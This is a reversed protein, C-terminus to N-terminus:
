IRQNRLVIYAEWEASQFVSPLHTDNTITISTKDSQAQVGVEFSGEPVIAAQGLINDAQGLIRGTFTAVSPDRGISDVTVDFTGTNSFNFAMKRLQMRAMKTSDGQAPKFVQESMQYKFTYPEGMTVHKGTELYEIIPHVLFDVGYGDPNWTGLNQGDETIAIMTSTLYDDPINSVDSTNFQHDLYIPDDAQSLSMKEFSGDNFTFYVDSNNFYFNVINKAFKWKSWSSQLRENTSNYWKYVYCESKDHDTLAILMDENSSAKIDIIQGKIYTPVHTTIEPADKIDSDDKTFFERVGSFSGSKTTFFVSTGAGVPTATLDCEYKTSQDITVESPTLLQTASLTFQNLESFLLLNDQIPIAAKLEAVENQSVSVDIPDSDLLTRVTTRFFNLYSGAESFVVNEGALVGLRNRHFFIDTIKQGVFSPVTNTNDDGAKRSAWNNANNDEAQGFKFGTSTERLTHPMTTLDFDNQLNYAVTEKWYGAGAEGTFVVHFDDEKKQNDGVVGIRFGNECQNPLDTFSKANGKFAKLNVGGDDDTVEINFDRINGSNNPTNIIFYPQNNGSSVKEPTVFGHVASDDATYVIKGEGRARIYQNSGLASVVPVVSIPFRITTSNVIHWGNAQYDAGGNTRYPVTAGSVQVVYKGAAANSATLNMSSPVTVDYTGIGAQDNATVAQFHELVASGLDAEVEERLSTNGNKTRSIVSAVKLGESNVEHDDTATSTTQNVTLHYGDAKQPNGNADSQEKSTVKVMYNRAYNVSKLYVLAQNLDNAPNIVDSMAVTKDKNVIFTADAVSTATIDKPNDPLYSTDDTNTSILVGDEDWSAVGSEYRLNGLIDYVLIKKSELIVVTFQVDDSRKYTHIFANELEAETLTILEPADVIPAPPTFVPPVDAGQGNYVSYPATLIKPSGGHTLKTYIQENLEEVTDEYVPYFNEYGYLTDPTKSVSSAYSVLDNSSWGLEETSATLLQTKLAQPTLNPSEQLIQAAAGTVNPAAFSTGNLHIQLSQTFFGDDQFNNVGLSYCSFDYEPDVNDTTPYRMSFLEDGLSVGFTNWGDAVTYSGDDYNVYGGEDLIEGDDAFTVFFYGNSQRTEDPFLNILSDVSVNDDPAGFFYEVYEPATGYNYTQTWKNVDYFNPFKKPDFAVYFRLIRLADQISHDQLKDILLQNAKFSAITTGDDQLSYEIDIGVNPKHVNAWQAVAYDLYGVTFWPETPDDSLDQSEAYVASTTSLKTAEGAAYLDVASGWCSHAAKTEINAQPTLKTTYGGGLDLAQNPISSVREIGLSGAIIADACWPSGHTMYPVTVEKYFLTNEDGGDLVNQVMADTDLTYLDVTNNFDLDDPKTIKKESNGASLIIHIGEDSLEQLLANVVDDKENVKWQRKGVITEQEVDPLSHYPDFFEHDLTPAYTDGVIGYDAAVEPDTILVPKIGTVPDPSGYKEWSTGRYVGRIPLSYYTGYNGWSCNVITPRTNGAAVKKEHWLKILQLGKTPTYNVFDGNEDKASIVAISYIAADPCWGHTNGAAASAVSTGHFNSTPYNYHDAHQTITGLPHTGDDNKTEEVWDITNVRSTGDDNLFESHHPDLVTDCIVIDVGEGTHTYQIPNDWVREYDELLEKEGVGTHQSENSHYAFHATRELSNGEDQSTHRHRGLGWNIHNPSWDGEKRNWYRSENKNFGQPTAVAKLRNNKQQTPLTHPVPSLNNITPQIATVREDTELVEAEDKTLTYQGILSSAAYATDDAEIARNPIADSGSAQKLEEDLSIFSAADKAVINYKRKLM